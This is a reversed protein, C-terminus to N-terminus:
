SLDVIQNTSTFPSISQKASHDLKPDISLRLGGYEGEVQWPSKYDPLEVHRSYSKYSKYNVDTLPQSMSEQRTGFASRLMEIEWKLQANEELLQHPNPSAFPHSM